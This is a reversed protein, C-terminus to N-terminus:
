KEFGIMIDSGYVGITADFLVQDGQTSYAELSINAGLVFIGGIAKDIFIKKSLFDLGPYHIFSYLVHHGRPGPIWICASAYTFFSSLNYEQFLERTFVEYFGYPSFPIVRKVLYNGFSISGIITSRGLHFPIKDSTKKIENTDSQEFQFTKHENGMAKNNLKIIKQHLGNAILELNEFNCTKPILNVDSFVTLLNTLFYKETISNNELQQQLRKLKTMISSFDDYNIEMSDLSKGSRDKVRLIIVNEKSNKNKMVSHSLIPSVHLMFLFFTILLIIFLKNKNKM